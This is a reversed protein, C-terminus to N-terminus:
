TICSSNHSNEKYTCEVVFHEAKLPCLLSLPVQASLDYADREMALSSDSRVISHLKRRCVIGKGEM